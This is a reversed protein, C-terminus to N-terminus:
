TCGTIQAWHTSLYIRFWVSYRDPVRQVDIRLEDPDVWAYGDVEGPDPRVLGSYLGGFCHVVEHETMGSDLVAHYRTTFLPVLTCSVDMEELLRRRAADHAEEGPRPHSCCTNTWLGGSHYKRIHRKQLLLRGGTDRVQVSIARHLSGARHASLKEAVGIACDDPDVLIVQDAEVEKMM